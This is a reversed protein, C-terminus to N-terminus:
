ACEGRCALLVFITSVPVILAVAIAVDLYGRAVVFPIVGATLIGIGILKDFPRRSFSAAFAGIIAIIGFILQLIEIV